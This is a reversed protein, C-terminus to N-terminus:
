AVRRNDAQHQGETYRVLVVKRESASTLDCQVGGCVSEEQQTDINETNRYYYFVYRLLCYYLFIFKRIQKLM